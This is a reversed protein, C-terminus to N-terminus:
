RILHLALWLGGLALGTWVARRVVQLLAAAKRILFYGAGLGYPFILAPM